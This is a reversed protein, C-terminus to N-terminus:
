TCMYHLNLLQLCILMQQLSCIRTNPLDIWCSHNETLHGHHQGLSVFVKRGKSHPRIVECEILVGDDCLYGFKDDEKFDVKSQLDMLNKRQEFLTM